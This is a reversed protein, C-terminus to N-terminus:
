PTTDFELAFYLWKKHEGVFPVVRLYAIGLYLGPRIMRIEDWVGRAFPNSSDKYDLIIAPGGDLRGNGLLIKADGTRGLATRNVIKMKERDFTKGQWLTRHLDRNFAGWGSGPDSNALGKAPGNPVPGPKRSKYLALLSDEDMKMLSEATIAVPEGPEPVPEAGRAASGWLLLAATVPLLSKV